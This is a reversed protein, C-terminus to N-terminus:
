RVWTWPVDTHTVVIFVVVVPVASLVAAPAFGLLVLPVAQAVRSIIDNVPHFRMSSLWDMHEPSHHVAHFPWLRTTHFLRHMWYFVFDALVLAEAAQFWLPQLGVPGWGDLSTVDFARGELRMLWSVLAAVTAFTAAKGVVPNFAWFLLDTVRGRRPRARRRCFWEVPSLVVAFAAFGLLASLATPWMAWRTLLPWWDNM